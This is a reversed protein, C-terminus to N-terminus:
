TKDDEIDAELQNAARWPNIEELVKTIDSELGEVEVWKEEGGDASKRYGLKLKFKTKKSKKIAAVIAAWGASSAIGVILPVVVFEIIASREGHWTRSNKDRSWEAGVGNISRLEKMLDITQEAFVGKGGESRIPLLVVDANFANAYDLRPATTARVKPTVVPVDYVYDEVSGSHGCSRVHTM